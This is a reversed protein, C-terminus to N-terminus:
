FHKSKPVFDEGDHEPFISKLAGLQEPTISKLHDTNIYPEYKFAKIIEEKWAQADSPQLFDLLAQSNPLQEGEKEACFRKRPPPM